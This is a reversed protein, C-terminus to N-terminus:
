TETHLKENILTFIESCQIHYLHPVNGTGRQKAKELKAVAETFVRVVRLFEDARNGPAPLAEMLSALHM